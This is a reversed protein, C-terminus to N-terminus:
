CVAYAGSFLQIGKLRHKPSSQSVAVPTQLHKGGGVVYVYDLGVTVPVPSNAAKAANILYTRPPPFCLSLLCLILQGVVVTAKMWSNFVCHVHM